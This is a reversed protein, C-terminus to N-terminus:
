KTGWNRMMEQELEKMRGEWENIAGMTMKPDKVETPRLVELLMRLTRGPGRPKFRDVLKKWAVFGNELHATRVLLGAEGSTLDVLREFLEGSAKTFNETDEFGEEDIWADYMEDTMAGLEQIKWMWKYIEPKEGKVTTMMKFHCEKWKKEDGNFVDMRVFNRPDLMRRGGKGKGDACGKLEKIITLFQEQSM